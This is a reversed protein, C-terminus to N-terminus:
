WGEVERGVGFGVVNADEREAWGLLRDEVGGELFGGVKPRAEAGGDM